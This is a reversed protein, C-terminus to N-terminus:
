PTAQKIQINHKLQEAVASISVYRCGSERCSAGGIAVVLSRRITLTASPEAAASTTLRPRSLAATPAIGTSLLLVPPEAAGFAVPSLESATPLPASALPSLDSSCVDSSWDSIRM